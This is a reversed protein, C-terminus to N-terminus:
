DCEETGRINDRANGRIVDCDIRRVDNPGNEASECGDTQEAAHRKRHREPMPVQDNASHGDIWQLSERHCREVRGNELALLAHRGVVLRLFVPDLNADGFLADERHPHLVVEPLHAVGAGAARAAFDM